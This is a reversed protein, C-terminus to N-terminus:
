KDECGKEASIWKCEEWAEECSLRDPKFECATREYCGTLWRRAPYEWYKCFSLAECTSKKQNAALLCRSKCKNGEVGCFAGGCFGLETIEACSTAPEGDNPGLCYIRYPDWTCGEINNCTSKLEIDNCEATEAEACSGALAGLLSMGFAMSKLFKRTM